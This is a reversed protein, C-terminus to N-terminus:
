APVADSRGTWQGHTQVIRDIAAAGFRAADYQCLGVLRASRFATANLRSEYAVLEDPARGLAWSMDGTACLGAYGFARAEAVARQILHIMAEADFCGGALYASRARAFRLAGQAARRSVDVGAEELAAAVEELSREEILCLGRKGTALGSALFRAVAELQDAPRTFVLCAHREGVVRPEQGPQESDM